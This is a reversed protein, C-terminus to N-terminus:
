WFWRDPLDGVDAAFKPGVVDTSRALDSNGLGHRWGGGVPVGGDHPGYEGSLAGTMESTIRKYYSSGHPGSAARAFGQAIENGQKVNDRVVESLDGHARAAIAACDAALDDISHSITIRM